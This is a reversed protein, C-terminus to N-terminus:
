KHLFQYIKYLYASLLYDQLHIKLAVFGGESVLLPTAFVMILKLIGFYHCRIKNSFM